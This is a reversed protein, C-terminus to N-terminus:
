IHMDKVSNAMITNRQLSSGSSPCTFASIHLLCVTFHSTVINTITYSKYTVSYLLDISALRFVNFLDFDASVLLLFHLCFARFLFSVPFHVFFLSLLYELIVVSVFFFCFV